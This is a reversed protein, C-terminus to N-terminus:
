TAKCSHSTTWAFRQACFPEGDIHPGARAGRRRERPPRARRPAGHTVRPRAAPRRAARADRRLLRLRARARGGRQGRAPLLLVRAGARRALERHGAGGGARPGWPPARAGRRPSTLAARRRCTLTTPVRPPTVPPPSRSARTPRATARAPTSRSRPASSSSSPTANANAGGGEGGGERVLRVLRTGGRTSLPCVTTVPEPM